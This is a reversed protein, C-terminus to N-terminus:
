AGGPALVLALLAAAVTIILAVAGVIGWLPSPEALPQRPPIIRLPGTDWTPPQPQPDPGTLAPPLRVLHAGTAAALDALSFQGTTEADPADGPPPPAPRAPALHRRGGEQAWPAGISDVLERRPLRVPGTDRHRGASM